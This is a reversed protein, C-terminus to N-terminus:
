RKASSAAGPTVGMGKLCALIEALVTEQWVSGSTMGGAISVNGGEPVRQAGHLFVSVEKPPFVGSHWVPLINKQNNAAMQLERRTWKTNGYDPSCLALFAQCEKVASQIEVPWEQGGTLANEGVYVTFGAAKLGDSLWTVTGDGGHEVRGTECKRYGIMVQKPRRRRRREAVAPQTMATPYDVVRDEELRPAPAPGMVAPRKRSAATAALAGGGGGGVASRVVVAAAAAAAATPMSPYFLPSHLPSAYHGGSNLILLRFSLICELPSIRVVDGHRLRQRAKKAMKIDNIWCGNSSLDDIVVMFLEGSRSSCSAGGQSAVSSTSSHASRSIRAHHSSVRDDQLTIHCDLSRGITIEPEHLDRSDTLLGSVM